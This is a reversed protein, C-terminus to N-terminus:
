FISRFDNKVLVRPSLKLYDTDPQSLFRGTDQPPFCSVRPGNWSERMIVSEPTSGTREQAARLLVYWQPFGSNVSAFTALSGVGAREQRSIGEGKTGCRCQATDPFGKESRIRM